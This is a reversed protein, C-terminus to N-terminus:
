EVWTPKAEDVVSFEIEEQDADVEYRKINNRDNGSNDKEVENLWMATRGICAQCLQDFYTSTTDLGPEYKLGCGGILNATKWIAADTLATHDVITRGEHEGDVIEAKWRIQPTKRESKATV